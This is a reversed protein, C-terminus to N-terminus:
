FINWCLECINQMEKPLHEILYSYRNKLFDPYLDRIEQLHDLSKEFLNKTSCELAILFHIYSPGLTSKSPFTSSLFKQTLPEREIKLIIECCEKLFIAEIYMRRTVPKDEGMCIFESLDKIALEYKKIKFFYLGREFFLYYYNPKKSIALSIDKIAGKYDRKYEKQYASIELNYEDWDTTHDFYSKINKM